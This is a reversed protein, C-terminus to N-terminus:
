SAEAQNPNPDETRGFAKSGLARAAQVNHTACVMGHRLSTHFAIHPLSLLAIPDQASAADATMATIDKQTLIAAEVFAIASEAAGEALIQRMEAMRNMTAVALAVWDFQQQILVDCVTSAAEDLKDNSAM